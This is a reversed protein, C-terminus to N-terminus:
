KARWKATGNDYRLTVGGGPPIVLNAASPLSFRNQSSSTTLHMLTINFTGVNWLEKLVFANVSSIGTLNIAATSTVMWAAERVTTPNWNDLNSGGAAVAVQLENVSRVLLRDAIITVPEAAPGRINLEGDAFVFQCYEDNDTDWLQLILSSETYIPAIAWGGATVGDGLRLEIPRNTGDEVIGMEGDALVLPNIFSADGKRVTVVAELQGLANLGPVGNPENLGPVLAYPPLGSFLVYASVNWTYQLGTDLAEYLKRTLGTGPFAALNAFQLIEEIINEVSWQTGGGTVIVDGKDGDTVGVGFNPKPEAFGM